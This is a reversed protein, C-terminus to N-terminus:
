VQEDIEVQENPILYSSSPLSTDELPLDTEEVTVQEIDKDTRVLHEDVYLLITLDRAYVLGQRQVVFDSPVAERIEGVRVLPGDATNDFLPALDDRAHGAEFYEATKNLMLDAEAPNRGYVTIALGVHKPVLYHSQVDTHYIEYSQGAAYFLPHQIMLTHEDLVAWVYSHEGTDVNDIWQTARVGANVFDTNEDVLLHGTSNSGTVTGTVVLEGRVDEYSRPHPPNHGVGAFARMTFFGYRVAPLQRPTGEWVPEIKDKTVLPQGQDDTIFAALGERLVRAIDGYPIM